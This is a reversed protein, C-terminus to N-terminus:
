NIPFTTEATMVLLACVEVEVEEEEEDLEPELPDLVPVIKKPKAIIKPHYESNQNQHM